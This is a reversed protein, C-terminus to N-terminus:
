TFAEVASALAAFADETIISMADIFDPRARNVRGDSTVRDM